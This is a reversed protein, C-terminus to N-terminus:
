QVSASCDLFYISDSVDQFLIYSVKRFKRNMVNECVFKYFFSVESNSADDCAIHGPFLHVDHVVQTEKSTAAAGCVGECSFM